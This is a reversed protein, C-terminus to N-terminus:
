RVGRALVCQCERWQASSWVCMVDWCMPLTRERNGRSRRLLTKPQPLLENSHTRTCELCKAVRASTQNTHAKANTCWDSFAVVKASVRHGLRTYDISMLNALCLQASLQAWLKNPRCWVKWVVVFCLWGSRCHEFNLCFGLVVKLEICPCSDRNRHVRFM